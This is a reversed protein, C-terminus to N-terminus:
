HWWVGTLIRMPVLSHVFAPDRQSRESAPLVGTPFLSQRPMLGHGPYAVAAQVRIGAAQSYPTGVSGRTRM